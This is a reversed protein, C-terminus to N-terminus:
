EKKKEKLDKFAIFYEDKITKLIKAVKCVEDTKNNITDAANLCDNKM